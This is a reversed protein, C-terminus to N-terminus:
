FDVVGALVLYAGDDELALPLPLDGNFHWVGWDKGDDFYQKALTSEYWYSIGANKKTFYLLGKATFRFAILVHTRDTVTARTNQECRQIADNKRERLGIIPRWKTNAALDPTVCNIEMISDLIERSVCLYLRLEEEELSVSSYSSSMAVFTSRFDLLVCASVLEAGDDGSVACLPLNGNFHWVGWDVKDNFSKKALTSKYGHLIGANLKVYYALGKTTFHFVLLRHTLGTVETKTNRACRGIADKKRERLGILPRERTAAALRPIVSNRDQIEFFDDLSVCLYLQLGLCSSCDEGPM